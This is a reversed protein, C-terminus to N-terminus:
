YNEYCSYQTKRITKWASAKIKAKLCTENIWVEETQSFSNSNTFSLVTTILIIELDKKTEALFTVWLINMDGFIYIENRNPNITKIM